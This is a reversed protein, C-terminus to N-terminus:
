WIKSSQFIQFQPSKLRSSRLARASKILTQLIMRPIDDTKNSV